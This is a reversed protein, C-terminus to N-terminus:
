IIEINIKLAYAVGGLIVMKLIVSALKLYYKNSKEKWLYLSLTLFTLLGASISIYIFNFNEYIVIVLLSLSFFIIALIMPIWMKKVHAITKIGAMADAEMDILSKVIERAITLFFMSLSSILANHWVKFLPINTYSLYSSMKVMIPIFYHLYPLLVGIGCIIGVIINGLLVTNKLSTNYSYIAVLSFTLLLPSASSGSYIFLGIILTILAVSMSYFVIKITDKDMIDEITYSKSIKDSTVDQIANHWYGWIGTLLVCFLFHFFIDITGKAYIGYKEYFPLIFLYHFMLYYLCVITLNLIRIVRIISILKWFYVKM